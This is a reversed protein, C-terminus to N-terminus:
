PAAAPQGAQTFDFCEWDADPMREKLKDIFFDNYDIGLFSGVQTKIPLEKWLWGNGCGVDVINPRGNGANIERLLFERVEHNIARTKDWFASNEHWANLCITTFESDNNIPYIM